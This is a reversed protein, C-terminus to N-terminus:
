FLGPIHTLALWYIPQSELVAKILVYICGLTLFHNCQHCIRQEYKKLLWQWDVVKYSDIKLYYGLYKFGTSLRMVGYHFLTTLQSLLDQQVGFHHFMSKDLNIELDSAVYFSNLLAHIEQWELISANSMIIVDDVFLLHLIRVM